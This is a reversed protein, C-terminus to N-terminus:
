HRGCIPCTARRSSAPTPWGSWYSGSITAPRPSAVWAWDILVFTGPDAAPVLFNQPSADGHMM